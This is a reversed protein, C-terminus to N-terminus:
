TVVCAGGGRRLLFVKPPPGRNDDYKYEGAAPVVVIATYSGSHRRLVFKFTISPFTDNPCCSYLGSDRSSEASILEWERNM